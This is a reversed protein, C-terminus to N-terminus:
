DRYIGGRYGAELIWITKNEEDLAFIVRMDGVRLRYIEKLCGELRKINPTKKSFQKLIVLKKIIRERDRSSLRKLSRDGRESLVVKYNSEMNRLWIRWALM